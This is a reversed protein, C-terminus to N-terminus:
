IPTNPVLSPKGLSGSPMNRGGGLGLNCSSKRFFAAEPMPIGTIGERLDMNVLAILLSRPAQKKQAWHPRLQLTYPSKEEEETNIFGAKAVPFRSRTVWAM